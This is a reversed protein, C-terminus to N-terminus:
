GPRRHGPRLDAAGRHLHPRRLQRRVAHGIRQWRGADAGRRGRREQRLRRRDHRSRRQRLCHEPGPRPRDLRDRRRHREREGSASSEGSTPTGIAAINAITQISAAADRGDLTKTALAQGLGLASDGAATVPGDGLLTLSDKGPGGAVVASNGPAQGTQVVDDGKRGDVYAPGTGTRINDDVDSGIVVATKEFEKVPPANGTGATNKDGDGLFTIKMPKTSDRGDVV